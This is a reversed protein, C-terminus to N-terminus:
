RETDGGSQLGWLIPARPNHQSSSPVGPLCETGGRSQGQSPASGHPFTPSWCPSPRRGLSFICSSSDPSHPVGGRSRGWGPRLGAGASGRGASSAQATGVRGAELPAPGPSIVSSLLVASSGAVLAASPHQAGRGCDGQERAAAGASGPRGVPPHTAATGSGTWAARSDLSPSARFGTEQGQCGM